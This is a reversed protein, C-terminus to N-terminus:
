LHLIYSFDALRVVLIHAPPSSFVPQYHFICVFSFRKIERLDFVQSKTLSRYENEYWGRFFIEFGSSNDDPSARTHTMIGRVSCLLLSDNDGPPDLFVQLIM